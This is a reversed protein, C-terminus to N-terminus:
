CFPPEHARLQAGLATMFHTSAAEKVVGWRSRGSKKGKRGEFLGPLNHFVDPSRAFPPRAAENAVALVLPQRRVASATQKVQDTPSVLCTHALPAPGALVGQKGTQM